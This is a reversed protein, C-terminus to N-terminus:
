SLFSSLSKPHISYKTHSSLFATLITSILSQFTLNDVPSYVSHNISFFLFHSSSFAGSEYLCSPFSLRIHYSINYKSILSFFATGFIGTFGTLSSAKFSQGFTFHHNNLDHNAQFLTNSKTFHHFCNISAILCM